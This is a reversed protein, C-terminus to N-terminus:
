FYIKSANIKFAYISICCNQIKRIIFKIVFIKLLFEFTTCLSINLKSILFTRNKEVNENFLFSELNASPNIHLFCLHPVDEKDVGRQRSILWIIASDNVRM